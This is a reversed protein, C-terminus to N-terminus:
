IRGFLKTKLALVRDMADLLDILESNSVKDWNVLGPINSIAESRWAVGDVYTDHLDNITKDLREVARKVTENM